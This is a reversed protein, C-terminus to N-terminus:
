GPHAGPGEAEKEKAGCHRRTIEGARKWEERTGTIRRMGPTPHTLWCTADFFEHVLMPECGYAAQLLACAPRKLDLDYVLVIGASM